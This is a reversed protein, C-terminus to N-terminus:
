FVERSLPGKAPLAENKIHRYLKDNGVLEFSNKLPFVPGKLGEGFVLDPNQFVIAEDWLDRSILDSLLRTGGEVLLTQISRQYLDTMIAGLVDGGFDIQKYVIHNERGEKIENYVITPADPNFIRFHRPVQLQKDMFARLPNIGKVLRNTLLPNDNIVTNKGVLIAQSESRLQHVMKNAPARTIANFGKEVPQARSIFGDASLAWKLIIYPRKEQHYTFFRRNLAKAEKALVGVTVDIGARRLRDIGKGAVLPNPDETAVVVKKFGAGIILDACPPTKGHHSCPELTVYLTCEDIPLNKGLKRIANVEAHAQGFKEHYGSSVIQDHHVVVSGVMPNPVVLPWGNRALDLAARM